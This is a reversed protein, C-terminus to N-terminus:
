MRTCVGYVCVGCACPRVHVSVHTHVRWVHVCVVSACWVCMCVHLMHVSVCVYKMCACVCSCVVSVCVVCACMFVGSWPRPASVLSHWQGWWSRSSQRPLRLHCCTPVPSLQLPSELDGCLCVFALGGQQPRPSVSCCPCSPRASCRAVGCAHPHVRTLPFM